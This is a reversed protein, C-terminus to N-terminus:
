ALDKLREYAVLNRRKLLAASSTGVLYSAAVALIIYVAARDANAGGVLAPLSTLAIWLCGLIGFLGGIPAVRTQLFGGPRGGLAFFAFVSVCTLSLIVMYGLTGGTV